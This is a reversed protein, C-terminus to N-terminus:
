LQHETNSVTTEIEVSAASVFSGFLVEALDGSRM